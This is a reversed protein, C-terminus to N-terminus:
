EYVYESEEVMKVECDDPKQDVSSHYGYVEYDSLKEQVEIYYAHSKTERFGMDHFVTIDSESRTKLFELTTDANGLDGSYYILKEDQTFYYAYSTMGEKHQGTTDVYGIEPFEEM